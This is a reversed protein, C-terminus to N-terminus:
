EYHFTVQNVYHHISNFDQTKSDFRINKCKKMERNTLFMLFQILKRVEVLDKHDNSLDFVNVKIIESSKYIMLYYYGCDVCDREYLSDLNATHINKILNALSDLDQLPLISQLTTTNITFLENFDILNFGTEESVFVTGDNYIKISNFGEWGDWYSCDIYDFDFIEHTTNSCGIM